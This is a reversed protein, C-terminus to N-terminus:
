FDYYHKLYQNTFNLGLDSIIKKCLRQGRRIRKELEQDTVDPMYLFELVQDMLLIAIGKQGNDYAWYVVGSRVRPHKTGLITESVLVRPKSSGALPWRLRRLSDMVMRLKDYNRFEIAVDCLRIFTRYDGFRRMELDLMQLKENRWVFETEKPLELQRYEIYDSYFNTCMKFYSCDSKLFLEKAEQMTMEQLQEDGQAKDFPLFNHFHTISRDHCPIPFKM